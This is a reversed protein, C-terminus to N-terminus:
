VDLKEERPPLDADRMRRQLGSRRSYQEHLQDIRQQFADEEGQYEALKRLRVLLSVAHDYPKAQKREILSEVDAWVETEREALAELDRIRRAEAEEARRRRERERRAEAERWLWGVTRRPPLATEPLPSIERLRRNLEVTLHPEGRALRLLLADREGEPLQSLASRLWSEPQAGRDDSAEAAVRIVMEDIEFFEVFAHLAPSLARLGPPVPPEPISELLDDVELVNLWALYLARYDGRLIDDRLSLMAGLGGEAEVWDHGEEDHFEVNLIVHEGATSFSVYDEVILPQCYASASELDFATRPFRFMLQRSGWNATYFMADYYQTLVERANGPFSSWHYVFVAQRPHPEVRSSLRAVAQQEEDTLLRDIAHFEYCQYSSM